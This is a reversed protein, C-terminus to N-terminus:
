VENSKNEHVCEDYFGKPLKNKKIYIKYFNIVIGAVFFIFVFLLAIATVTVFLIGLKNFFDEM